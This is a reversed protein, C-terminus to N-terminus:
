WLITLQACTKDSSSLDIADETTDYPNPMYTGRDNEAMICYVYTHGVILRSIQLDDIFEGLPEIFDTECTSGSGTKMSAVKSMTGTQQSFEEYSSYRVLSFLNECKSNDKFRFKVRGEDQGIISFDKPAGTLDNADEICNCPTVFPVELFMNPEYVMHLNYRQGPILSGIKIKVRGVGSIEVEANGFGLDIVSGDSAKKELRIGGTIELASASSDEEVESELEEENGVEGDQQEEICSQFSYGGAVDFEDHCYVSTPIPFTAENSTVTILAAHIEHVCIDGQGEFFKRLVKGESSNKLLM